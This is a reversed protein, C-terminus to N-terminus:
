PIIYKRKKIEKIEEIELENNLYKNIMESFVVKIMPYNNDQIYTLVKLKMEKTIETNNVVLSSSLLEDVNIPKFLDKKYFKNINVYDYIVDYCEPNNRKVFNLLSNLFNKDETFSIEKLFDSKSYICKGKDFSSSLKSALDSIIQKRRNIDLKFYKDKINIYKKYLDFDFECITDVCYEFTKTDIGINYLFNNLSTKKGEKIYLVMIYKAYDYNLNKKVINSYYSVFEVADKNKVLFMYVKNIDKIFQSKRLPIILDYYSEWLDNATPYIAIIKEIKEYTSLNSNYYKIIKTLRNYNLREKKILNVKPDNIIMKKYYIIKNVTQQESYYGNYKQYFKELNEKKEGIENNQKLFNYLNIIDKSMESQNISM